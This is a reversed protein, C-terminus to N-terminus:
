HSDILIDISVEVPSVGGWGGGTSTKRQRLEHGGTVLSSQDETSWVHIVEWVCWTKVMSVSAFPCLYPCLFSPPTPPSISSTRAGYREQRQMHRATCLETKRYTPWLTPVAHHLLVANTAALNSIFFIYNFFILHQTHTWNECLNYYHASPCGDHVEQWHLGLQETTLSDVTGWLM